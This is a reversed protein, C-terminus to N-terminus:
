DYKKEDVHSSNSVKNLSISNLIIWILSKNTGHNTETNANKLIWTGDMFNPYDKKNTNMKSLIHKQM